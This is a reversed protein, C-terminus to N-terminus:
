SSRCSFTNSAKYDNPKLFSTDRRNYAVGMAVLVRAAVGLGDGGHKKARGASTTAGSSM